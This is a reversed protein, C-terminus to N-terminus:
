AGEGRNVFVRVHGADFDAITNRVHLDAEAAVDHIKSTDITGESQEECLAVFQGDDVSVSVGDLQAANELFTFEGAM